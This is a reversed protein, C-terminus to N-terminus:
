KDIANDRDDLKEYAVALNDWADLNAPEKALLAKMRVVRQEYFYRSHREWKGALVEAIGPLGRKEDRITDYDWLCASAPRALAFSVILILRCFPRTPMLAGRRLNAGDKPRRPSDSASPCKM